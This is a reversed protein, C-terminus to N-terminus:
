TWNVQEVGPMMQRARFPRDYALDNDDCFARIWADDMLIFDLVSGLFENDQVRDIFDQESAGSAGLFVPLLEDNAALWAIAHLGIVEASNQTDNM